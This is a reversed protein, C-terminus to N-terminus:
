VSRGGHRFGLRGLSRMVILDQEYGRSVDAM